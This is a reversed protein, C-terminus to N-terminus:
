NINLKFLLIFKVFVKFRKIRLELAKRSVELSPYKPNLIIDCVSATYAYMNNFEDDNAESLSPFANNTINEISIGGDNYLSNFSNGVEKSNKWELIDKSNRRRNGTLLRLRFTRTIANRVASVHFGRLDKM